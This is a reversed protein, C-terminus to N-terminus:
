AAPSLAHQTLKEYHHQLRNEEAPDLAASPLAGLIGLIKDGLCTDLNRVSNAVAAMETSDGNCHLLLDCGANLANTARTGMDGSLAQMSLDDTMLLGEFGIHNRIVQNIVTPSLTAPHNADIASYTIHASMALPADALVRFPVFDTHQLDAVPTDVVPLELHSDVRARGHGPMHKVVPLVGIDALASLVVRALSIVRDAHVGLARDGIIRDAGEIPIDLLPICDTNIGLKLLDSAMLKVHLGLAEAGNEMDAYIGMPPYDRWYPPRLRRVRGGEQDILVLLDRGLLDRVSQTLARVQNPNGINRSFLIIGAPKIDALFGKEWSSLKQGQLGFIVPRMVMSTSVSSM